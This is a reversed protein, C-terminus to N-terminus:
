ICFELWSGDLCHSFVANRVWLADHQPCFGLSQWCKHAQTAVDYGNVRAEGSDITEEATLMRITTTKGAGNPGLLGLCEGERIALSLDNVAVLSRKGNSKDKDMVSYTKRLKRARISFASADDAMAREREALVGAGVEENM